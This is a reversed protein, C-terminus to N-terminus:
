HGAPPIQTQPGTVVKNSSTPKNGYVEKQCAELDAQEPHTILESHSLKYGKGQLCENIDEPESRYTSMQGSAFIVNDVKRGAFLLREIHTPVKAAFTRTQPFAYRFVDNTINSGLRGGKGVSCSQFILPANEEIVGSRRKLEQRDYYNFYYSNSRRRSIRPDPAGLAIRSPSGHGSVVFQDATQGILEFDDLVDMAQDSKELEFYLVTNGRRMLDDTIGGVFAGNWDAKAAFQLTVPAKKPTNSPRVYKRFPNKKKWEAEKAKEHDVEAQFGKRTAIVQRLDQVTFRDPFEIDLSKMDAMLTDIEAKSLRKQGKFKTGLYARMLAEDGRISYDRYHYAKTNIKMLELMLKTDSRVSASFFKLNGIHKSGAILKAYSPEHWIPSELIEKGEKKYVDIDNFLYARPDLTGVKQIFSTDSSVHKPLHDLITEDAWMMKTFLAPNNLHYPFAYKIFEPKVKVLRLMFEPNEFLTSPAFDLVRGNIQAAALMFGPDSLQKESLFRAVRTDRRLLALAHSDDGLKEPHCLLLKQIIADHSPFLEVMRHEHDSLGIHLVRERGIEINFPECMKRAALEAIVEERLESKQEPSLAPPQPAPTACGLAASGAVLSTALRNRIKGFIGSTQPLENEQVQPKEM